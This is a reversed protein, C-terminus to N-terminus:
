CGAVNTEDCCVLAIHFEPFEYFLCTRTDFVTQLSLLYFFPSPGSIIRPGFPALDEPVDITIADRLAGPEGSNLRFEILWRHPQLIFLTQQRSCSSQLRVV